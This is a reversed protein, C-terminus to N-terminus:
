SGEGPGLVRAITALARGCDAAVRWALGGSAAGLVVGALWARDAAAGLALVALLMAAFIVPISAHPWLRWRAMQRGAGHEEIGLRVRLTEPLIAM